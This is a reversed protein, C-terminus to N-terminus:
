IMRRLLENIREGRYGADGRPYLLRIARYGGSPPSLRFVGKLGTEKLPRGAELAKLAQAARKPDVRRNGQERARTKTLHELTARDIEGWTVYNEAKKLMGEYDGTKPVVVCHNVRTLNLMRLTDRIEKRAGPTGRIRVAALMARADSM